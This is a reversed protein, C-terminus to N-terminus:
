RYAVALISKLLTNIDKPFVKCIDKRSQSDKLCIIVAGVGPNKHAYITTKKCKIIESLLYVNTKNVKTSKNVM